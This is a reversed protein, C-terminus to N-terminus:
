ETVVFGNASMAFVRDGVTKKTKTEQMRSPVVSASRIAPVAATSRMALTRGVQKYVLGVYGEKEGRFWNGSNYASIAARLAREGPGFTRVAREYFETVIKGGAALNTCPDFVARVSLGLRALNRDNIQALGLSVTHGNAILGMAKAVAADISGMYYSRVLHKRQSWPMNVPGADAIAFQHGRSEASILAAMTEPHVTPACREILESFEPAVGAVPENAAMVVGVLGLWYFVAYLAMEVWQRLRSKTLAAKMFHFDPLCGARPQTNKFYREYIDENFGFFMM